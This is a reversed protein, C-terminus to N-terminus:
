YGGKLIALFNGGAKPPTLAYERLKEVHVSAYHKITQPNSHGLIRRVADYPIDDNVMSSAMSARLTHPGKKKGETNIEAQKFAKSVIRYVAAPTLASFPPRSSLFLARESSDPRADSIYSKITNLVQAPLVMCLPEETKQQTINLMGTDMSISDTKLLVIDGCRLGCRSALMMMALDRIGNTSSKAITNEAKTIEETSYISPLKQCRKHKPVFTSLDREIIGENFLYSLFQSIFPWSGTFDFAICAKLVNSPTMDQPSSCGLENLKSVFEESYQRKRSVTIPKNGIDLCNDLYRSTIPTYCEPIVVANKRFGVTQIWESGECQSDFRRIIARCKRKSDEALKHEDCYNKLFESTDENTFISRQKQQFYKKVCNLYEKYGLITVSSYGRCSLESLLMDRQVDFEAIDYSYIIM